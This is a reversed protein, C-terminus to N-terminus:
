KDSRLITCKVFVLNSIEEVAAISLRACRVCKGLLELYEAQYCTDVSDNLKPTEKIDGWSVSKDRMLVPVCLLRRRANRKENTM